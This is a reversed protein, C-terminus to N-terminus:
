CFAPIQVTALVLEPFHPFEYFHFYFAGEFLTDVTGCNARHTFAELSRMVDDLQFDEM